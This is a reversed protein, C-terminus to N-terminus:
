LKTCVCWFGFYKPKFKWRNRISQSRGSTLFLTRACENKNEDM